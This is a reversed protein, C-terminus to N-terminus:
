TDLQGPGRPDAKQLYFNCRWRYDGCALVDFGTSEALSRIDSLPYKYPYREYPAAEKDSAPVFDDRVVDIAMLGRPRLVRWAGQFVTEIGPCVCTWNLPLYVDVSGDDVWDSIRRGDGNILRAHIGYMELFKHAAEWTRRHCEVGIFEQFGDRALVVFTQGIGCGTELVTLRARERRATHHRLFTVAGCHYDRMAPISLFWDQIGYEDVVATTRALMTKNFRTRCKLRHRWARLTALGRGLPGRQEALRHALKHLM